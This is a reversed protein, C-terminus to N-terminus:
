SRRPSSGPVAAVAILIWKTAGGGGPAAPPPALPTRSNSDRKPIPNKETSASIQKQLAQARDPPLSKLAEPVCAACCVWAEVRFAKRQEFQAERLQTSCKFCYLIAQGM